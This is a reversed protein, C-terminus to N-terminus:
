TSSCPRSLTFKLTVMVSSVPSPMTVVGTRIPNRIRGTTNRVQNTSVTTAATEAWEPV